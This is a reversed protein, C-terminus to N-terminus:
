TNKREMGKVRVPEDSPEMALLRKLIKQARNLRSKLTGLPVELINSLEDLTYGETHHLLVVLRQDPNLQALATEIQSSLESSSARVFTTDTDDSVEDLHEDIDYITNERQQRRYGDVYLNYLGRCLWPTLKEIQEIKDLKPFLRTLFSQVLEEADDSSGCLRYAFRYMSDIHPRLLLEFRDASGARNRFLSIISM